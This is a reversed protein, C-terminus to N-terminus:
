REHGQERAFAHTAVLTATVLQAKSIPLARALAQRQLPQLRQLDRGIRLKLQASGPTRALIGDLDRVRQELRSISSHATRYEHRSEWAVRTTRLHDNGLHELRAAARLAQKREASRVPGAQTGRLEGFRGPHRAMEMAAGRIGEERVRAHFERRAARPDRYVEKLAANFRKSAERAEVRQGRLPALRSRARDLEEKAGDRRGELEIRRELRDISKRLADLRPDLARGGDRGADRRPAGARDRGDTGMGRPREGEPTARGHVGPQARGRQSEAAARDPAPDRREDAGRKPSRDARGDRPAAEGDARSHAGSGAHDGGRNREPQRAAEVANGIDGREGGAATRERERAPEIASGADGRRDGADAVRERAEAAQAPREEAPRGGSEGSAREPARHQEDMAGLREELKRRSLDRAVSSVKVVETGDTVVLGRGRPELRLGHKALREELEAWNRAERFDGGATQRVLEDFPIEGAREWKRLQGTTLSESRDPPTQGELKYHHGPVERLGLAREQERLSREIQTYDHKPDWARFTEPHVRNVMLHVHRHTTDGHAVILVQHEQLGLDHLLRDAVANMKTPDVPDGPDFSLAVHYVPRQVRHSQAATARMLLGATRPDTTPLNRAEIWEVRQQTNVEKGTELYRALGSFGRGRMVKAIV